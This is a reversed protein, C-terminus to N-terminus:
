KLGKVTEILKLIHSRNRGDKKRGAYDMACAILEVMDMRLIGFESVSKFVSVLKDNVSEEKKHCDECLTLLLNNPIDWPTPGYWLHHVNLLRGETLGCVQCTFNDRNMIELRKKQWRPDRLLEGYRSMTTM